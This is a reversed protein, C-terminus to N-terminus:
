LYTVGFSLSRNARNRQWAIEKRGRNQTLASLEQTPDPTRFIGSSVIGLEPGSEPDM